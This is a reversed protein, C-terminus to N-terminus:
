GEKLVTDIIPEFGTAGLQFVSLMSLVHGTLRTLRDTEDIIIGTFQRRRSEDINPYDHLVESLSRVSALQTRLEHSIDSIINTEM